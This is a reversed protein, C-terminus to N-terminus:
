IKIHLGVGVSTVSNRVKVDVDYPQYYLARVTQEPYFAHFLGVNLRVKQTLRYAFGTCVTVNTEMATEFAGFHTYYADRDSYDNVSYVGGLSLVLDDSAKYEFGLSATYANGATESLDTNEYDPHEIAVKGWDANTQFYYNWDSVVTLKETAQWAIGFATVSPLDRMSKEGDTYLGIDDRTVTTEFELPVKSEYRFSLDLKGTVRAHLGATFGIGAAHDKTELALPVDPALGSASGTMTFGAETHNSASLYRMSAGVSLRDNLAYAGGAMTALYYSTGKLYVDKGTTYDSMFMANFAPIIGALILDTNISGNPYDATAGGGAIFTGGFLSWRDKTYAVNLNPVFLDNGDQGYKVPGTGLDYEHTPKRFYSQNGIGIHWGAELHTMGAPNYMMADPADTAANRSGLRTWEPSLNALNDIQAQASFVALVACVLLLANKM